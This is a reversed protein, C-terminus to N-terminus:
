AFQTFPVHWIKAGAIQLHARSARRDLSVIAACPPVLLRTEVVGDIFDSAGTLV